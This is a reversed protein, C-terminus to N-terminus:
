VRLLSSRVSQTFPAHGAASSLYHRLASPAHRNGNIGRIRTQRGMCYDYGVALVVDRDARIRVGSEVLQRAGLSM